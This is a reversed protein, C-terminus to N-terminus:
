DPFQSAILSMVTAQALSDGYGQIFRTMCSIAFFVKWDVVRFFGMAGLMSNSTLMFTFGILISNKRGFKSITVAHLPTFVSGALNFCALAIGTMTADIHKGYHINVFLPFFSVINLIMTGMMFSSLIICSM